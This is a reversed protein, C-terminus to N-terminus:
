SSLKQCATLNPSVVKLRPPNPCPDRGLAHNMYGQGNRRAFYRQRIKVSHFICGFIM